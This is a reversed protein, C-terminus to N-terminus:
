LKDTILKVLDEITVASAIASPAIPVVPPGPHAVAACTALIHNLLRILGHSSTIYVNSIGLHTRFNSSLRIPSGDTYISLGNSLRRFVEVGNRLDNKVEEILMQIADFSQPDATRSAAQELADVLVSADKEAIEFQIKM